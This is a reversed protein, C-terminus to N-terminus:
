SFNKVKFKLSAVHLKNAVCGTTMITMQAVNNIFGLMSSWAIPLSLACLKLASQSM